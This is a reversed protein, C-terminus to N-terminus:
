RGVVQAVSTGDFGQEIFLAEAADLIAERRRQRGREAAAYLNVAQPNPSAEGSEAAMQM